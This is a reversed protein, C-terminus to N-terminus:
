YRSHTLGSWINWFALSSPMGSWHPRSFKARIGNTALREAERLFNFFESEADRQAIWARQAEKLSQELKAVLEEDWYTSNKLCGLSRRTEAYIVNLVSDAYAFQAQGAQLIDATTIAQIWMSDLSAPLTNLQELRKSDPFCPSTNSPDVDQANLTQASLYIVILFSAQKKM